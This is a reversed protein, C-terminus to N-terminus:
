NQCDEKANPIHVSSYTKPLSWALSLSRYKIKLLKGSFGVEAAERCGRRQSVSFLLSIPVTWVYTYEEHWAKNQM